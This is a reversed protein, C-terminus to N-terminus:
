KMAKNFFYYDLYPKFNEAFNDFYEDSREIKKAKINSINCYIGKKGDENEPYLPTLHIPVARSGDSEDGLLKEVDAEGAFCVASGPWVLALWILSVTVILGKRM